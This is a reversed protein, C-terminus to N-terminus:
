REELSDKPLESTSSDQPLGVIVEGMQIIRDKYHITPKLTEIIQKKSLSTVPQSTIVRLAMGSVYDQGTHDEIEVGRQALADWTSELDRSVRNLEKPLQGLGSLRRQLRWVLTGVDVAMDLLEEENSYVVQSKTLPLEHLIASEGLSDSLTIYKPFAIRFEQPYRWLQILSEVIAYPM